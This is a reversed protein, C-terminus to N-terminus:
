SNNKHEGIEFGLLTDLSSAFFWDVPPTQGQNSIAGILTNPVFDNFVTTGLNLTSNGNLHSGGLYAMGQNIDHFRTDYSETTSQWEALISMLAFLHANTDTDYITSGSILIDGGNASGGSGGTIHNSGSHGILLSRGTGGILSGQGGILINGQANGTLFNSGSGGLVDQINKVSGATGSPVGVNSASGNL